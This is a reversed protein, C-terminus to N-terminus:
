IDSLYKAYGVIFNGRSNKINFWNIVQQQVFNNNPYGSDWTTTQSSINNNSMNVPFIDREESCCPFCM